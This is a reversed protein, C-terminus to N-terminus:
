RKSDEREDSVGLGELMSVLASLRQAPAGGEGGHQEPYQRCRRLTSRAGALAATLQKGQGDRGGGAARLLAQHLLLAEEASGSFM